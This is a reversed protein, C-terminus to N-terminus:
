RGCRACCAAHPASIAHPCPARAQPRTQTGTHAQTSSRVKDTNKDPDHFLEMTGTPPMDVLQGLETVSLSFMMKNAWDYNRSGFNSQAGQNPAVNAFELM